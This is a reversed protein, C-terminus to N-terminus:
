LFNQKTHALPVGDNYSLLPVPPVSLLFFTAKYSNTLLFALREQNERRNYLFKDCIHSTLTM